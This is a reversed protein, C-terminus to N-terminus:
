EPTDKARKSNPDDKSRKRKTPAKVSDDVIVPKEQETLTNKQSPAPATPDSGSLTFEFETEAAPGSVNSITGGRVCKETDIGQASLYKRVNSVTITEKAKRAEKLQSPLHPISVKVVVSNGDRLSTAGYPSIFIDATLSALVPYGIAQYLYSDLKKSYETEMFAELSPTEINHAQLTEHTRIRKSIFEEEISGDGYIELTESEELSHAIEHVIDDLLDDEGSVYEPLIYIAGDQYVADVHRARLSEFDGVYIAEINNMLHPPVAASVRELVNDINVGEPLERANYVNIRGNWLFHVSKLKESSEKIYM